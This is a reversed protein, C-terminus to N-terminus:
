SGGEYEDSDNGYSHNSEEELGDPPVFLEFSFKSKKPAKSNYEIKGKRIEIRSGEEVAIDGEDNIVVNM